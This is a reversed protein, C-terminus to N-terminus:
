GRSLQGVLRGVESHHVIACFDGSNQRVERVEARTLLETRDYVFLKENLRAVEPYNNVFQGFSLVAPFYQPDATSCHSLVRHSSLDGEREARYIRRREDVVRWNFGNQDFAARTRDTVLLRRRYIELLLEEIGVM